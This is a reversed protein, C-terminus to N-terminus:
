SRSQYPPPSVRTASVIAGATESAVTTPADSRIAKASAGGAAFRALLPEVSSCSGTFPESAGADSVPVGRDAVGDVVDDGGHMGRKVREVVQVGAGVTRILHTATYARVTGAVLDGNVVLTVTGFRM